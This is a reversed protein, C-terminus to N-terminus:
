KRIDKFSKMKDGQKNDGPRAPAQKVKEAGDQKTADPRDVVNVDHKDAFDKEGKARPELKEQDGHKPDIKAEAMVDEKVMKVTAKPAMGKLRTRVSRLGMKAYAKAIAEKETRATVTARGEGAIDVQYTGETVEAPKEEDKKQKKNTDKKMKTTEGSDPDIEVAEEHYGKDDCHDCGEGECKPCEVKEEKMAKKIAKRRKHLYEDSDDVDGDNDIDADAQGVPDLKDEEKKKKAENLMRIYADAISM